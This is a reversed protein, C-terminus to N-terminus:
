SLQVQVAFFRNLVCDALVKVPHIQRMVGSLFDQLFIACFTHYEDKGISYLMQLMVPPERKSILCPCLSILYWLVYVPPHIHVSIIHYVAM